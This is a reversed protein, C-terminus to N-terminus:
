AECARGNGGHALTIQVQVDVRAGHQLLIAIAQTLPPLETPPQLTRGHAAKTIGHKGLTYGVISPSVEFMRAIDAKSRGEALYLRRLEEVPPPWRKQEEAMEEGELPLSDLEGKAVLKMIRDIVDSSVRGHSRAVALAYAFQRGRRTLTRQM